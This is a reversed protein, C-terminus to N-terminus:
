PPEDYGIVPLVISRIDDLEPGGVAVHQRDRDRPGLRMNDPVETAGKLAIFAQACM